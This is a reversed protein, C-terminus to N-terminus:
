APEDDNNKLTVMVEDLQDVRNEWVKRFPDLWADLEKMKAYNLHYHIQRGVSRQRLLGCEHLVGVHKSVSQRSHGFHGAIANPTMSHIMLLSLISRRTPDALAYFIDRRTVPPMHLTITAFISFAVLHNCINRFIKGLGKGM